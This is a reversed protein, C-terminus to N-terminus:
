AANSFLRELEGLMVPGLQRADHVSMANSYFRSVDHGIGIALLEVLQSKEIEGTVQQLHRALYDGPNSALTSTDVPAGDSITLLIKRQAPRKLLRDYAWLLAEGDINQKLLDRDLMMGLNRRTSRYSAEASKYVIHRIDNLRGPNDPSGQSEWRETSRGGHLHVTTFGLIEVSVGCRELTQALIDACAAAIMIPRGMMSRSNDILLTVSTDRMASDSESKFSLPETPQTVIRSLRATDLQGEEMDFQWHRRQRALLVRQLRAALRRILRSHVDIHQDLESRWNMMADRSAWSAALCEEDFETTFIRYASSDGSIRIIPDPGAVPAEDILPQAAEEDSDTESEYPKADETHTNADDDKTRPSDGPELDDDDESLTSEVLSDDQQESDESSAFESSDAQEDTDNGSGSGLGTQRKEWRRLLANILRSFEHQDTATARLQPASQELMAAFLSNGVSSRPPAAESDSLLERCMLRIVALGENSRYHVRADAPTPAQASRNNLNAKVGDFTNAGISEYREQELDDFLRRQWPEGPALQEHLAADHYLHKLAQSDLLGRAAQLSVVETVPRTNTEPFSEFDADNALTRACAQSAQTLPSDPADINM